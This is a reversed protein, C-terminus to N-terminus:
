PDAVEVLYEVATLRFTESGPLPRGPLGDQAASASDSGHRSLASLFVTCFLMLTWIVLANRLSLLSTVSSAEDRGVAGASCDCCVEGSVGEAGEYCRM